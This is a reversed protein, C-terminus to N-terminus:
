VDVTSLATMIFIGAGYSVVAYVVAIQGLMTTWLPELYDANAFFVLGFVGLPMMALIFGSARAESTMAKVKGDFAARARILKSIRNVTEIMNGGTEKQMLLSSVLLRLDFLTPNRQILEDLALRWDKGFRVQEYVTGFEGAVPDAMEVQVLRFCDILGAGTQMARGMMELADPLQGVLKKARSAARSQVWRYPAWAFLLALPTGKPGLFIGFGLFATFGLVVMYTVLTSVTMKMGAQQIAIQMNSGVNGLRDLASDSVQERLLSTIVEEEDTMGMGLRQQIRIREAERRGRIFYLVSMAAFVIAAFVMSLVVLAVANM